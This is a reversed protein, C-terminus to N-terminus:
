PPNVHPLRSTTFVIALDKYCCSSFMVGSLPFLTPSLFVYSTMWENQLLTRTIPGGFIAGVCGVTLALCQTM